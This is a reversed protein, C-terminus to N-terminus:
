AHVEHLCFCVLHFIPLLFMWGEWVCCVHVHADVYLIHAFRRLGAAFHRSAHKKTTIRLCTIRLFVVSLTKTCGTMYRTCVVVLVLCLLSYCLLVEGGWVCVSVSV